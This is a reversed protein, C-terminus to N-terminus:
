KNRAAPLLSIRYRSDISMVGAWRQCRVVPTVKQLSCRALGASLANAPKGGALNEDPQVSM